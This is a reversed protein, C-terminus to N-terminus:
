NDKLDAEKAVGFDALVKMPGYTKWNEYQQATKMWEMGIMANAGGQMFADPILGKINACARPVLMLWSTTILLSHAVGGVIKLQECMSQYHEYVDAASKEATM